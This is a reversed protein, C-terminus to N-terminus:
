MPDCKNKKPGDHGNGCAPENVNFYALYQLCHRKQHSIDAFLQHLGCLVNIPLCRDQWKWNHKITKYPSLVQLSSLHHRGQPLDPCAGPPFATVVCPIAAAASFCCLGPSFAQLVPLPQLLLHSAVLGAGSPVSLGGPFLLPQASNPPM